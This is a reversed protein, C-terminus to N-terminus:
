RARINTGCVSCRPPKKLWHQPLAYIVGCCSSFRSRENFRRLYWRPLWAHTRPLWAMKKQPPHAARWVRRRMEMAYLSPYETPKSTVEDAVFRDADSYEAVVALEPCLQGIDM